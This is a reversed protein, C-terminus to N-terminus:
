GLEPRYEHVGVTVMPRLNDRGRIDRLDSYRYAIADMECPTGNEDEWAVAGLRHVWNCDTCWVHTTVLDM